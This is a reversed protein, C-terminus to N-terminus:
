EASRLRKRFAFAVAGAVTLLLVISSPEPTATFQSITLTASGLNVGGMSTVSGAYNGISTLPAGFSAVIPFFGIVDYQFTQGTPDLVAALITGGPSTSVLFSTLITTSTLIAPETFEVQTGGLVGDAYDYLFDASAPQVACLAAAVATLSAVRFTPFRM